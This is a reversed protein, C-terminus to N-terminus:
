YTCNCTANRFKGVESVYGGQGMRKLNTTQHSQIESFKFSIYRLTFKEKERLEDLVTM